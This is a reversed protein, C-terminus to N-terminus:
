HGGILLFFIDVEPDYFRSGFYYIKGFRQKGSYKYPSIDLGTVEVNGFADYEYYTMTVGDPSSAGVVSGLHDHYYYRVEKETGSNSLSALRHGHILYSTQVEQSIPDNETKITTIDDEYSDNVYITTKTASGEIATAKVLRGMFDYLFTTDNLKVLRGESDYTMTDLVNGSSDKKSTRNGDDSYQFTYATSNDPNQISTLQWGDNIFSLKDYKSINGSSDYSFNAREAFDDGSSVQTLQGAQICQLELNATSADTGDKMVINGTFMGDGAMTHYSSITHNGSVLQTTLPRGFPNKFNSYTATASIESNALVLSEPTSGDLLHTCTISTGNPNTATLMEGMGTWTFSSKFDRKDVTLTSTKLNGFSDYTFAQSLNNTSTVESLVEKDYTFDITEENTVKQVIRGYYDTSSVVTTSTLVNRRTSQRQQDNFTVTFHSITKTATETNTTVKRSIERSLRDYELALKVGNPDTISTPRALGDFETTVANNLEDHQKTVCSKVFNGGTPADANPLLAMERVVRRKTNGDSLEDMVIPCNKTGKEYLYILTRILKPGGSREAPYVVKTLRSLIDYSYEVKAPQQGELYPRSRSTVRGVNDYEIDRCIFQSLDDPRSKKISVPRGGGMSDKDIGQSKEIERGLADYKFSNLLDNSKTITSPLDLVLNLVGEYEAFEVFFKNVATSTLTMTINSLTQDYEYKQRKDPGEIYIMNGGEDYKYSTVSWINDDVENSTKTCRHTGPHYENKIQGLLTTGQKTVETLKNGVVWRSDETPNDTPTEFTSEISLPTSNPPNIITKTTNGFPDYAFEVTVDYALNGSEYYSEKLDPLQIAKNKKDNVDISTWSYNNLQLNVNTSLVKSELQSVIGVLPFNQFYSNIEITGPSSNTKTITEFGLWGRGNFDVRANSYMYQLSDIATPGVRASLEHVVFRPFSVLQARECTMSQAGDQRGTLVGSSVSNEALANVLAKVVSDNSKYVLSDTLPAYLSQRLYGLTQSYQYICDLPQWQTSSVSPGSCLMSYTTIHGTAENITSLVCDSRGVGRLDAWRALSGQSVGTPQTTDPLQSVPFYPSHLLSLGEYDVDTVTPSPDALLTAGTSRLLQFQVKGNDNKSVFLLGAKSDNDANFPLITNDEVFAIKKGIEAFPDDSRYSLSGQKSEIYAIDWSKPSTDARVYLLFLDDAGNGDLDGPIVTMKAFDGQEVPPGNQVNKANMKTGDSTFQVFKIITNQQSDKDGFIYVLGVRGDGAFDGTHFRGGVVLPKFEVEAQKEFKVENAKSRDPKSLLATLYYASNTDDARIHLIDTLGDGSLNLPFILSRESFDLGTSGSGLAAASSINGKLDALYVNLALLDDQKWAVVFDNSGSGNVDLPIIQSISDKPIDTITAIEKTDEFVKTPTSGTWEFVLPDMSTNNILDKLELSSLYNLKTVPTEGYTLVYRLARYDTSDKTYSTTVAEMRKDCLIKYGGFYTTCPDTRTEYEFSIKRQHPIGIGCNGGYNIQDLRYAGTTTSENIYIFAICNSFSDISESIALVRTPPGDEETLAKINSDGTAGFRRITGDPLHQEWSTPNAVDNGLAFIRSWQEIEFRYENKNGIMVLRQGDLAFKDKDNYNVSGRFGDQAVTAPVREIASVGLLAWGRGLLSHETAASHYAFALDPKFRCQPLQLPINITFSGSHDVAHTVPLTGSISSM